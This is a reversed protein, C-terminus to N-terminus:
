LSNAFDTLADVTRPGDHEKIKKGDSDVAIVTPFGQVGMEKMFQQDESAEVKAYNLTPLKSGNMFQDWIPNFNKCHGCGNMHCYVISSKGQPLDLGEQNKLVYKHILFASVCILVFCFLYCYMPPVGIKSCLKNFM